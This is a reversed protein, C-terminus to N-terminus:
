TPDTLTFQKGGELFRPLFHNGITHSNYYPYTLRLLKRYLSLIALAFGIERFGSFSSSMRLIITAVGAEFFGTMGFRDFDLDADFDAEQGTV